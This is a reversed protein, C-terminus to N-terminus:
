HAVVTRYRLIGHAPQLPWHTVVSPCLVEEEEESENAGGMMRKRRMM